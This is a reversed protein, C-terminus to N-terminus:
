HFDKFAVSTSKYTLTLKHTNRVKPKCMKLDSHFKETKFSFYIFHMIAKFVYLAINTITNNNKIIIM